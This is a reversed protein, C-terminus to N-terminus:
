RPWAYAQLGLRLHGDILPRWAEAAKSVTEDAALHESFAEVSGEFVFVVERETVFVEHRVLGFETPDFPPGNALLAEVERQSGPRIPVVLAEREPNSWGDTLESLRDALEAVVGPQAVSAVKLEAGSSLEVLLTPRGQLRDGTSRALRFAKVDGYRVVKSSRSEAHGNRGELRLANTGLELRGSHRVGDPEEWTVAYSIQM